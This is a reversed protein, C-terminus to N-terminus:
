EEKKLEGMIQKLRQYKEFCTKIFSQFEYDTAMQTFLLDPKYRLMFTDLEAGHLQTIRIVLARSFRHEIFKDKEEELLRERFAVMRKNRRFQFMEIFQDLDMGIAGGPTSVVGIGPKKFNFAKAYDERNQISDLHYNRPKVMIQKLETVNVHLAVEFNQLNAIAKVAYKPTPKGLYSFWVSDNEHVIIMYRGLSDTITGTGGTSMVSVSPLPVSQSMDFVKGKVQVQSMATGCAAMACLMFLIPRHLHLHTIKLTHYKLLIVVYHQIL